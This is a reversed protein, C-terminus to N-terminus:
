CHEQYHYLWALLALYGGAIVAALIVARRWDLHGAPVM